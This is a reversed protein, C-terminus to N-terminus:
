PPAVCQAESAALARRTPPRAPSEPLCSAVVGGCRCTRTSLLHRDYPYYHLIGHMSNRATCAKSCEVAHLECQIHTKNHAHLNHTATPYWCVEAPTSVWWPRDVDCHRNRLRGLAIRSSPLTAAWWMCWGCFAHAPLRQIGAPAARSAQGLM